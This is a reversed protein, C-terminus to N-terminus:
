FRYVNCPPFQKRFPALRVHPDSSGLIEVENVQLEATATAQAQGRSARTVSPAEADQVSISSAASADELGHGPDKLGSPHDALVQTGAIPSRRALNDEQSEVSPLM